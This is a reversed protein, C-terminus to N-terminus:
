FGHFGGQIQWGIYGPCETKFGSATSAATHCREAFKDCISYAFDVTGRPGARCFDIECLAPDDYALRLSCAHNVGMVDVVCQIFSSCSGHRIDEVIINKEGRQVFSMCRVLSGPS